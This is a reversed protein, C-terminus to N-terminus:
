RCCVIIRCALPSYEGVPKMLDGTILHMGDPVNTDHVAVVLSSDDPSRPEAATIVTIDFKRLERLTSRETPTVIPIGRETLARTFARTTKTDGHSNEIM